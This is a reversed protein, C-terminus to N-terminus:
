PRWWIKTSKKFSAWEGEGAGGAAWGAGQLM